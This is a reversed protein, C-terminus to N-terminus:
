EDYHLQGQHDVKFDLVTMLQIFNDIQDFQAHMQTTTKVIEDFNNRVRSETYRIIGTLRILHRLV